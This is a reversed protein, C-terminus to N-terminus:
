PKIPKKDAEPVADNASAAPPAAPAPAALPADAIERFVMDAYGLFRHFSATVRGAAPEDLRFGTVIAAADITGLITRLVDAAGQVSDVGGYSVGEVLSAWRGPEATFTYLAESLTLRDFETSGLTVFAELRIEVNALECGSIGAQDLARQVDQVYAPIGGACRRVADAFGALSRRGDAEFRRLAEEFTALSEIALTIAGLSGERVLSPPDNPGGQMLRQLIVLLGFHPHILENLYMLVQIRRGRRPAEAALLDLTTRIRILADDVEDACAGPLCLGSEISALTGRVAGLYIRALEAILPNTEAEDALPILLEGNTEFTVRGTRPEVVRDFRKGLNQAFRRLSAANPHGGAPSLALTGGAPLGTVLALSENFWQQASLPALAASTALDAM